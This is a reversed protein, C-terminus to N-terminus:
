EQAEFDCTVTPNFPAHMGLPNHQWVWVHLSYNPFGPGGYNTEPDNTHDDYPQTGLAPIGDQEDWAAAAVIYEVAVLKMTGNKQPEYVLAEPESIDVVGDVLMENVFHHGMGGIPIAICPSAWEYGDAMAVDVRHYRATAKRVEALAKNHVSPPIGKAEKTTTAALPAPEDAYNAECSVIFTTAAMCSIAMLRNLNIKMFMKLLYFLFNHLLYSRMYCLLALVKRGM